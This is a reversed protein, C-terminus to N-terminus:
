CFIQGQHGPCFQYVGDCRVFCLGSGGLCDDGWGWCFLQTGDPCETIADCTVCEGCQKTQSGDNCRAQGRIGADCDQDQATCTGACNVTVSGGTDPCQATCTAQLSPLERGTGAAEPAPCLAGALWPADPLAPPQPPTESRAPGGLALTLAFLLCLRICTSTM